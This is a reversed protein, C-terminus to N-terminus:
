GGASVRITGAARISGRITRRGPMARGVWSIGIAIDAALCNGCTKEVTLM